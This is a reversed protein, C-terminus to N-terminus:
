GSNMENLIRECAEKLEPVEKIVSVWLSELRVGGYNHAIINKYGTM